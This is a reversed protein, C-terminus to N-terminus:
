GSRADRSARARPRGVAGPRLVRRALRPRPASRCHCGRGRAPAVAMYADVDSARVPGRLRWTVTTLGLDMTEVVESGASVEGDVLQQGFRNLVMGMDRSSLAWDGAPDDGDPPRAWVHLEPLGHKALGVTYAFEQNEDSPDHIATIKWDIAHTGRRSLQRTMHVM